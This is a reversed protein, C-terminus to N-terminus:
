IGREVATTRLLCSSTDRSFTQGFILNTLRLDLHKPANEPVSEPLLIRAELQMIPLQIFILPSTLFSFTPMLTSATNLTDFNGELWDCIKPQNIVTALAYAILLASLSLRLLGIYICVDM